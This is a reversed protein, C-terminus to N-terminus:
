IFKGINDEIIRIGNMPDKNIKNILPVDFFASFFEFYTAINEENTLKKREKNRQNEKSEM